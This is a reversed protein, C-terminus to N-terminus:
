SVQKRQNIVTTGSWLGTGHLLFSKVISVEPVAVHLKESSYLFFLFLKVQNM